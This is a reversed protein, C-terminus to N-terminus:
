TPVYSSCLMRYVIYGLLILCGIGILIARHMARSYKTFDHSRSSSEDNLLADFKKSYKYYNVWCVFASVVLLIGLLTVVFMPLYFTM